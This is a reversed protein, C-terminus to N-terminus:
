DPLLKFHPRESEYGIGSLDQLRAECQIEPIFLDDSQFFQPLQTLVNTQEIDRNWNCETWPAGSSRQAVRYQAGGTHLRHLRQNLRLACAEGGDRRNQASILRRRRAQIPRM